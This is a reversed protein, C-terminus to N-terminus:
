VHARGIERKRLPEDESTDPGVPPVMPARLLGREALLRAADAASAARGFHWGQGKSCGLRTLEIATAEDEVGEATIPMALSEGLRVIASVIAQAVPSGRRAPLLSRIITM